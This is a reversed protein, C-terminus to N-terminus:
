RSNTTMTIASQNPLNLIWADFVYPPNPSSTWYHGYSEQGPTMWKRNRYSREGHLTLKFVERFKPGNIPDSFYHLDYGNSDTGLEQGVKPNAAFYQLIM